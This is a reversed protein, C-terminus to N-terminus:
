ALLSLITASNSNVQFCNMGISSAGEIDAKPNDGIHLIETVLIDKNLEIKRVERLLLEFFLKDPKSIGIEDSYLQFEFFQSLELASLVKRLTSGKIFATNSSINFTGNSEQKLKDLSSSTNNCYVIPMYNFLLQEMEKYLDPLDINVFSTEFDNILSVVMLHMEDADINKGTKENVANCMTDVKKFASIVEELSKGKDNFNKFFVKAREIKFTPNSKILTMWLDFSYHRYVNM